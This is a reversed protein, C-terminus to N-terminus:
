YRCQSNDPKIFYSKYNKAKPDMCGELNLLEVTKFEIPHSESQLSIYGGTISDGDKPAGNGVASVAGGGAVPKSYAIVKDGNIYHEILSDGLVLAEFTVWQDGPYTKSSSGICHDTVLKGNMVVNTGPTCLNGTTREGEPPGGLFQAELSIPFDQNKGMSEPTQCHLMAGSNRWAWDPGGPVQEGVFRYVVRLRYYNYPKEYFIHGFREDYSKYQDYAVVMKKKSVRFTNGYNDDLAYGRIKPHWGQLNKGNFLRQWDKKKQAPLQGAVLMACIALLIIRM